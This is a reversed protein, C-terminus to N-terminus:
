ETPDPSEIFTGESLDIAGNGYIQRLEAHYKERDEALQTLEETLTEMKNKALMGDYTAIGLEKLKESISFEFAKVKELEQAKIKETKM